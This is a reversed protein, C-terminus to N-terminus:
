NVIEKTARNATVQRPEKTTAKPTLTATPLGTSPGATHGCSRPRPRVRERVVRGGRAPAGATRGHHRHYTASRAESSGRLGRTRSGLSRLPMAADRGTAHRWHAHLARSQRAPQEPWLPQVLTRYLHLQRAPLLSDRRGGGRGRRGGSSQKRNGHPPQHKRLETQPIPLM